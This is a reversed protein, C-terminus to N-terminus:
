QAMFRIYAQELISLLLESMVPKLIYGCTGAERARTQYEEMAYATLMVICVRYEALIRRAAELGDIEGPMRIDMLVLEPRERLVVDVGGAGTNAVGVVLIGARTLARRLQLQTVGEDEVIVVRKGALVSPNSGGSELPLPSNLAPTEAPIDAMGAMLSAAADAMGPSATCARWVPTPM